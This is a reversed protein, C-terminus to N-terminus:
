HLTPGDAHSRDDQGYYTEQKGEGYQTTGPNTSRLLRPKLNRFRRPPEHDPRLTEKEGRM